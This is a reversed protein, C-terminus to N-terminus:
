RRVERRSPRGPSGKRPLSNMWSNVEEVRPTLGAERFQERARLAVGRAEAKADSNWLARALTFGSEALVDPGASSFSVAQRLPAIAERARGLNFLAKGVGDYSYQLLEDDAPLKERKIALAREFVALAEQPRALALLCEGVEDLSNAVPLSSKGFTAERVGVSARAHELAREPQGMERLLGALMGHRNAVDPHMAGLATRTQELAQELLTLARPRDNMDLLVSGLLFLTRARKPHGPPLAREQLGRAKELLERAEEHHEQSLALNARNTLLDAEVVPEGGLRRVAAEGLGAWRTAQPFHKQGDEVFLLRNAISVKLRDARGSEADFLAQALLREAEVPDGLQSQLVGLDFRLEAILPLFGTALVPTELSFGKELAPRYRGADLLAKVGALEQGLRAIEARRSADSPLGQQQSLSEVDRCEQLSPLAYAADLARDVLKADAQAMVDVLARMDQRRRDLCVVRRSMLEETQIGSVRTATCAEASQRKWSTAYEDLVGTVRAAMDGAGPRGTALFAKELEAGTGPKWVETMPADAGACVQSQRYLVGGVVAVGVGVACAGVAWRQRQARRREHSLADLLERMSPFRDQPDLSMGRMLVQRVWAPVKTDKPPEQILDWPVSARPAAPALPSPVDMTQTNGLLHSEVQRRSTVFARMRATEFARQRYLGWYLAVCFSFQDSSPSLEGGEYQEPSMYNPTGMVVGARTLTTELMRHESSVLGEAQEPVPEDPLADGTKRALGFDTVYVRGGRGMLVNAPKFDRHVLGAEHAALLGRGAALFHELVERWPRRAELWSSLTGEEAMEMALFVHEGWVGVDHIPVVHPHNVRAMAQAERLLRARAAESEAQGEMNLLKLAVKRDLDPDYASYVVGMGGQGLPKLLIYRGM